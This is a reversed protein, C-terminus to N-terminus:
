QLLDMAKTQRSFTAVFGQRSVKSLLQLRFIALGAIEAQSFTLTQNVTRENRLHNQRAHGPHLLTKPAALNYVYKASGLRVRDTSEAVIVQAGVTQEAFLAALGDEM